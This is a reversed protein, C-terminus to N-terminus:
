ADRKAMGLAEAATMSTVRGEEGKNSVVENESRCLLKLVGDPIDLKPVALKDVLTATRGNSASTLQEYKMPLTLSLMEECDFNETHMDLILRAPEVYVQM